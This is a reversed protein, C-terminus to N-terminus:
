CNRNKCFCDKIIQCCVKLIGRVGLSRVRYICDGFEKKHLEQMHDFAKQLDLENSKDDIGFYPYHHLYKGFIMDCDQHYKQTDLIHNHWFEDVEESPPM